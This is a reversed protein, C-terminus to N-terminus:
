KTAFPWSLVGISSSSTFHSYAGSGELIRIRRNKCEVDSVTEVNIVSDVDWQEVDKFTNEAGIAEVDGVKICNRHNISERYM